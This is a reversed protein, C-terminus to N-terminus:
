LQLKSDVNVVSPLHQMENARTTFVIMCYGAGGAVNLAERFEIQLGTPDWLTCARDHGVRHLAMFWPWWAGRDMSNKLCSYQHLNGNGM